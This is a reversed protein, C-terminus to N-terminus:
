TVANASTLMAIYRDLRERTLFEDVEISSRLIKTALIFMGTGMASLVPQMRHLIEIGVAEPLDSMESRVISIMTPTLMINARIHEAETTGIDRNCIENFAISADLPRMTNGYIDVAVAEGALLKNWLAHRRSAVSPSYFLIEGDIMYLLSIM